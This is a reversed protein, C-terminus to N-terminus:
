MYKILRKSNIFLGLRCMLYRPMENDLDPDAPKSCSRYYGLVLTVHIM